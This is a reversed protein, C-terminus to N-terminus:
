TASPMGPSSALRTLANDGELSSQSLNKAAKSAMEIQQAAAAAQQARARSQRIAKVADDSRIMKPPAGLIDASEDIAQDLDVKDLIDPYFPVIQGVRMLMHDISGLSVLRQAQHLISVFHTKLEIGQLEEPAPPLKGARATIAFIRDIAPKLLDGDFQGLVPGLVMIKEEQRARVEEATIQRRDSEALMLFLNRYFSENIGQRRDLIDQQLEAVRPNIEITPRFGGQGERTDVYTMEGAITSSRQGRMHAPGQMPPNVMKEVANSKRLQMKQLEKIHPLATLGPGDGYIDGPRVKWRPAMIPFEDFGEELLAKGEQAQVEYYCSLWAKQKTDFGGPNHNPNPKIVQMIEYTNQTEGRKYDALAKSSVNEEGFWQVMQRVTQTFEQTFTDVQRRHNQALAFSGIPFQYCRITDREDELIAMAATAFVGCDEYMGPLVSYFNSKLMIDNIIKQVDDLWIKVPQYDMMEPDPTALLFWQRAPSTIGSMMGATLTGAAQTATPDLIKQNRKDGKNVDQVLFRAKRPLVYDALERWHDIWSQRDLKMASYLQKDRLRQEPSSYSSDNSYAV